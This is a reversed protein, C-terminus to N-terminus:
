ALEQSHLWALVREAADNVSVESTDIRLEPSAPTEYPDDIGTFGKIKGARAAAYLGKRDRAECVELPTAIHIEVFHGHSQVLQRAEDRAEAYPAIPACIAIGGHRVVESAVYGIRTINANRDERSFGLGKSLHRRVEDGDLMTVPRSGTELLRALVAQALTSKGSGSLGTFFLAFGQRANAPHRERLIKVVEPFTFWEPIAEGQHLRRRLETGSIDRVEDQSGVETQPLYVDRNAAYVMAPFPVIQIGLEDEHESLLEQAAYPDYFPKGEADKGPGAHDRGVIFHSAGYNKRIIAHWLAERPGGMRMALPLLSLTAHDRPYHELLAHYCRVRTYHDVDGPKTRGVSPQILLKAGVQEAARLTLERHARHMPNRTQFAVIRHWGHQRFWDRLQRPSHRLATFDYHPPPQIGQLKGGLYVPGTRDLLEAVGPHTRDTTGFVSRAEAIRDPFYVDEVTLVALPTGQTDNLSIQANDPLKAAFAEDVDLTIPIPWLTGNALRMEALVRDYDARGLFGQLPSFGGNLLLELDCLQRQNLTWQPLGASNRKLIEADPAPVYLERLVGGHPAVLAHHEASVSEAVVANM